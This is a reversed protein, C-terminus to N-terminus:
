QMKVNHFIYGLMSYSEIYMHAIQDSVIFFFAYFVPPNKDLVALAPKTYLSRIAPRSVVAYVAVGLVAAVIVDTPHHLASYVRAFAVVCGLIVAAFGWRRSLGFIGAALAFMIVINDSPFASWDIKQAEVPNMFAPLHIHLEPEDFPRLRFPLSMAISRAVVPALVAAAFCAIIHERKERTADATREKRFWYGYLLMVLPAAKLLYNNTFGHMIADFWYSQGAFSNLYLIISSDFSNM